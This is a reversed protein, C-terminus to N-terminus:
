ATVALALALLGGRDPDSPYPHPEGRRMRALPPDDLHDALCRLARAAESTSGFAVEFRGVIERNCHWCLAGRVCDGCSRPGDCCEHDHDTQAGKLGPVRGCACAGGQYIWLAAMEDPSIGYVRGIRTERQVLAKRLREVREHTRCRRSRPGGAVAPRAQRPQYEVTPSIDEPEDPYPPLAACDVCQHVTRSRTAPPATM